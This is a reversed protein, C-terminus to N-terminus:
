HIGVTQSLQIVRQLTCLTPPASDIEKISAASIGVITFLDLYSVCEGLLFPDSAFFGVGYHLIQRPIFWLRPSCGNDKEYGM